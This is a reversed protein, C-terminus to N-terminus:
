PAATLYRVDTDVKTREGDREIHLTAPAEGDITATGDSLQRVEKDAGHGADVWRGGELRRQSNDATTNEEPVEFVVNLPGDGDWWLSEVYVDHEACSTGPEASVPATQGAGTAVDAVTVSACTYEQGGTLAVQTGDPSFVAEDTSDARGTPLQRPQGDLPLLWPQLIDDGPLIGRYSALAAGDTGAILNPVRVEDLFGDASPVTLTTPRPTPSAASLDVRVLHNDTGALWAIESGGIPALFQCLCETQRDGCGECPVTTTEGSEVSIVTIGDVLSPLAFVYKGDTTFQPRDALLLPGSTGVKETGDMVLLESETEQWSAGFEITLYAYVGASPVPADEAPGAGEATCGALAVALAAVITLGRKTM